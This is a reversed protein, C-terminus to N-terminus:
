RPEGFFFTPDEKAAQSFDGFSKELNDEKEKKIPINKFHENLINNLEERKETPTYFIIKDFFKNINKEEKDKKKFKKLIM